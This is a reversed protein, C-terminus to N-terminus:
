FNLQLLLQICAVGNFLAHTVIGPLISQTRCALWGLCLAFLFLPIPSPWFNAHAIAFLLSTAGIARWQTLTRRRLHFRDLNQMGAIVILTFVVPASANGLGSWDRALWATEAKGIRASLVLALAIGMVIVVGRSSVTLWRLLIGRFFLEEMVPAVLVASVIMLGWEFRTAGAQAIKTLTHIEPEGPFLWLYGKNLLLFLLDCPLGVVLWCLWGLILSKWFRYKTLGLQYLHFGPSLRFWLLFLAIKVPFSFCAIWFTLHEGQRQLDNALTDQFSGGTLDYLFPFSGTNLLVIDLFLPTVIELVFFAALVEIGGWPVLRDRRAPLLKSPWGKVLAPALVLTLTVGFLALAATAFIRLEM